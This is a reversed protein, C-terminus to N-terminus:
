DAFLSLWNHFACLSELPVAFAVQVTIKPPEWSVIPLRSRLGLEKEPTIFVLGDFSQM